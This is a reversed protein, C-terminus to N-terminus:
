GADPELPHRLERWYAIEDRIGTVPDDIFADRSSFVTLEGERLHAFATGLQLAEKLDHTVFLSTMAHHTALKQFLRQMHRRTAGDLSGFPEDLLLVKPKALIARAFAVRQKQGGSLEHSRKRAHDTLGIEDLMDDVKTQVETAPLKRLRLAFAINEFCDLHEFLLTEQGLYVINRERPPANSVERGDLHIQGRDANALGAIIKLLTTKGSGSEGLVALTQGRQLSLSVSQLVVARGYRKALDTTQLLNTCNLAAM